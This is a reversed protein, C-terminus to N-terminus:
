WSFIKALASMVSWIVLGVLIFFLFIKLADWVSTVEFWGSVLLIPYVTVLMILFHVGSKRAFSWHDINYIVTAAGVFFAIFSAIFTGKADLYKGQYYLSLAIGSMIVFPIGGRLLAKTIM